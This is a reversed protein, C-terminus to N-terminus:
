ANGRSEKRYYIPNRTLMKYYIPANDKAKADLRKLDIIAKQKERFCWVFPKGDHEYIIAYDVKGLSEDRAVHLIGHEDRFARYMFDWEDLLDNKEINGYVKKLLSRPKEVFARDMFFAIILVEDTLKANVGKFGYTKMYHNKIAELIGDNFFPEKRVMIVFHEGSRLTGNTSVGNTYLISHNLDKRPNKLLPLRFKQAPQLIIMKDIISIARQLDWSDMEMPM